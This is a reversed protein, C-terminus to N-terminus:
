RFLSGLIPNKSMREMAPAFNAALDDVIAIKSIIYLLLERESWGEFAEVVDELGEPADTTERSVNDDSEAAEYPVVPMEEFVSSM